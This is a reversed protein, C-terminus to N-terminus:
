AILSDVDGEVLRVFVGPVVQGVGREMGFAERVVAEDVAAVKGGCCLEEMSVYSGCGYGREVLPFCTRALFMREAEGEL